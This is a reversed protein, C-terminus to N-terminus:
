NSLMMEIDDFQSETLREIQNLKLYELLSMAEAGSVKDKVASTLCSIKRTIGEDTDTEIDDCSSCSKPVGLSKVVEDASQKMSGRAIHDSLGCEPSTKQLYLEVGHSEHRCEKHVVTEIVGCAANPKDFYLEPVKVTVKCELEIKFPNNVVINHSVSISAKPAKFGESWGFCEKVLKAPKAPLDPIPDIVAKEVLRDVWKIGTRVSVRETISRKVGEFKFKKEQITEKWREVGNSEHRCSKNTSNTREVGCVSTRGLNYIEAGHSPHRCALYTQYNWGGLCIGAGHRWNIKENQAAGVKSDMADSIRELKPDDNGYAAYALMPNNLELTQVPNNALLVISLAKLSNLEALSYIQNGSLALYELNHLSELPKVDTIANDRLSLKRLQTFGSLPRLDVLKQGRIFLAEKAQLLASTEECDSGGVKSRLVSVTHKISPEANTDKCYGIFSLNPKIKKRAEVTEPKPSSNSTDSPSSIEGAPHNHQPPAESKERPPKACSILVLSCVWVLSRPTKRSNM